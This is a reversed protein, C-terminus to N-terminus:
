QLWSFTKKELGRFLSVTSQLPDYFSDKIMCREALNKGFAERWLSDFYKPDGNKIAQAALEGDWLAYLIGGGSVPDVHGAADGILIWNDGACPLAFFSPDSASPIMAAYRSIIKMKPCYSRLFDDLLRKLKNGHKLESGIGMNSLTKGPFVWIYGPIEALYKIAAQGKEVNTALYGYTLALNERSIPGKTQRRVLSNVGDAGVLTKARLIKRNTKIKWLSGKWKVDVVKEKVLRAGNEMAMAIIGEDLVRRSISFGNELWRTVLQIDTCSILRFEGFTSGSRRFEEVFPFRRLVLPSIGGGCPKERPHSHDFILPNIGQRALELACYAGAPGGGVIVVDETQTM